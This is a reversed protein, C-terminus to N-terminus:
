TSQLKPRHHSCGQMISPRSSAQCTSAFLNRTPSPPMSTSYGIAQLPFQAMRTIPLSRHVLVDILIHPLPLRHRHYSDYPFPSRRHDLCPTIKREPFILAIDPGVRHVLIADHPVFHLLRSLTFFFSSPANGMTSASATKVPTTRRTMTFYLLSQYPAMSSDQTGNCYWPMSATVACPSGLHRIVDIKSSLSFYSVTLSACFPKSFHHRYSSSVRDNPDYLTTKWLPKFAPWSRGLM